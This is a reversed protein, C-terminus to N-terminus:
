LLFTVVILRNARTKRESHALAGPPALGGRRVRGEGCMQPAPHRRCDTRSPRCAEVGALAKPPAGPAPILGSRCRPIGVLVGARARAQWAGHYGRRRREAFEIPLLPGLLRKMSQAHRRTM